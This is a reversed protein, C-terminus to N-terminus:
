IFDELVANRQFPPVVNRSSSFRINAGSSLPNIIPYCLASFIAFIVKLNKTAGNEEIMVAITAVVISVIGGVGVIVVIVVMVVIVAIVIIVVVMMSWFVPGKKSWAERNRLLNGRLREVGWELIQSGREGEGGGRRNRWPSIDLARLLSFLPNRPM